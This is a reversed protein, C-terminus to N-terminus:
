DVYALFVSDTDSKYALLRGSDFLNKMDDVEFAHKQYEMTRSQGVTLGHGRYGRLPHFFSRGKYANLSTTNTVKEYSYTPLLEVLDKSTSGISYVLLYRMKKLFELPSVTRSDSDRLSQPISDCLILCQPLSALRNLVESGIQLGSGLHLILFHDQAWARIYECLELYSAYPNSFLIAGNGTSLAPQAADLAWNPKLAGSLVDGAAGILLYPKQVRRLLARMLGVGRLPDGVICVTGNNSIGVASLLQAPTCNGLDVAPHNHMNRRNASTIPASFIGIERSRFSM